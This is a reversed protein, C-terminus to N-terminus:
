LYKDVVLKSAETGFGVICIGSDSLDRLMQELHCKSNSVIWFNDAWMFSCIQHTRHQELDSFVGMRKRVCDEEVNAFLQMAMQQWLRHVEVSGQRLGRNFTLKTGVCEFMDQREVDAMERLLASVKRGRTNHSEMITAVDRPRAEDFDTKSDVSALYKTPCVVSGHKLM